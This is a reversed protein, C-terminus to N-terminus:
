VEQIDTRPGVAAVARQGVGFAVLVPTGDPKVRVRAPTIAGHVVGAGHAAAMDATLGDLMRWVWATPQPGDKQLREALSPGGVHETVMYVTGCAEFVTRVSALHQCAGVDKLCNQLTTAEALFQKCGRGYDEAVAHANPGVKGDRRVAWARPLYEMLEVWQDTQIDRARYTVRTDDSLDQLVEDIQFEGVMQGAVLAANQRSDAPRPAQPPPNQRRDESQDPLQNPGEPPKQATM